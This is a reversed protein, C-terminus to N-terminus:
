RNRRLVGPVHDLDDLGGVTGGLGALRLCQSGREALWNQRCEIM